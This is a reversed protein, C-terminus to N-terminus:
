ATFLRVAGHATNTFLFNKRGIVVPKISCEALNNSLELHGNELVRILYPWQEQVHFLAKGLAPKPAAKNASAWAFFADM